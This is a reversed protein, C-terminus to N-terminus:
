EGFITSFIDEIDPLVRKDSGTVKKTEQRLIAEKKECVKLCAGLIGAAYASNYLRWNVGGKGASVKKNYEDAMANLEKILAGLTDLICKTEDTM